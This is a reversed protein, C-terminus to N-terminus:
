WNHYIRVSIVRVKSSHFQLRIELRTRRCSSALLCKHLEANSSNTLMTQRYKPGSYFGNSDHAKQCEFGGSSSFNLLMGASNIGYDFEFQLLSPLM